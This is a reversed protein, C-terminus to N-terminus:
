LPKCKINHWFDKLTKEEKKESRYQWFFQQREDKSNRKLKKKKCSLQESKYININTHM